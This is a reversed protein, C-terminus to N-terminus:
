DKSEDWRYLKDGRRVRGPLVCTFVEGKNAANVMKENLWIAPVEFEVVGTSPGIVLAQNGTALIGTEMQFEAVSSRSFYNSVKGIYVKRRTAKSGYKASWGGTKEGLYYGNWFGRNFVEGLTKKWELTRAESFTGAQVAEVAQRYISVVTRVYEPPRARGEIKLVQVGAALIRDIIEITCLDEPSMVYQNDIEMANGTETDTVQYSRRCSQLCAGRNASHNNDHLSMYCRGSIAVCLAGHIFLEIRLPKGSPGCINEDRIGQTIASIQDLSLERALVIVEAFQSYFRLADLNSVNAQTSIHVELDMKRAMLITSIDSAIIATIGAQRATELLELLEGTENDYVLTNVTLYAKMHHAHCKEVILRLDTLSFNFSSASRMNLRGVGFYVSGAGAQIAAELSEFSGVPAM